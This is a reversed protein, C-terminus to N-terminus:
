DKASHCRSHHQLLHSTILAMTISSLRYKSCPVTTLQLVVLFPKLRQRRPLPLALFPPTLHSTILAMTISSLRYKSCPVTTLQLVALSPKLRQCLPLPLALFPPIQSPLPLALFPPARRERVLDGRGHERRHTARRDPFLRPLVPGSRRRPRVRTLECSRYPNEMPIAATPCSRQLDALSLHQRRWPHWFVPLPLTKGMLGGSRFLIRGHEASLKSLAQPGRSVPLAKAAAPQFLCLVLPAFHAPTPLLTGQRGASSLASSVFAFAADLRALLVLSLM